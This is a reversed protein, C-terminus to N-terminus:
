FLILDIYEHKIIKKNKNIGGAFNDGGLFFFYFIKLKLVHLHFNLPFHLLGTTFSSM